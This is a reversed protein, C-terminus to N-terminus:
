GLDIPLKIALHELVTPEISFAGQFPDSLALVMYLVFGIFLTYLAILGVLPPQPRYAGFCAMTVLFGLMVVYVFVPPEALANDFRVGRWNTLEDVDAVLLAWLREQAPTAPELSLVRLSLQDKLKGTRRSLRDEALAPWEHDIVSEVYDILLARTERTATPDFARLDYYADSIAVVERGVAGEIARVKIIVDAFALSLMLGVLMGVVRFLSGTPDKLDETRYRAILKHAILYVALGVATTVAMAVVIGAWDPLSLIYEIM